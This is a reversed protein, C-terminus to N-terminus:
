PQSLFTRAVCPMVNRLPFSRTVAPNLTVSFLRRWTTALTFLRPLLGGTTRTVPRAAGGTLQLIM